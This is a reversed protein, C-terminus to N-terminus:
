FLSILRGTGSELPQSCFDEKSGLFLKFEDLGSVVIFMSRLITFWCLNPGVVLKCMLLWGMLCFPTVSLCSILNM